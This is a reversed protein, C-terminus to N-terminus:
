DVIMTEMNALKDKIWDQFGDIEEEKKKWANINIYSAISQAVMLKLTNPDIADLEV